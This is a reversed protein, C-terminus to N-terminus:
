MIILQCLSMNWRTQDNVLIYLRRGMEELLYSRQTVKTASFKLMSPAYARISDAIKITTRIMSMALNLSAGVDVEHEGAELQRLMNLTVDLCICKRQM